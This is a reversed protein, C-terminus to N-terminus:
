PLTLGVKNGLWQRNKQRAAADGAPCLIVGAIDGNLQNSTYAGVAFAAWTSLNANRIELLNWGGPPLATNLHAGSSAAGGPVDIGNVAYTPTGSNYSNNPDAPNVVVLIRNGAPANYLLAVNAASNRRIAIFCDMDSGLTIAGTSMGDDLGDFTICQVVVQVEFTFNVGSGVSPTYALAGSFNFDTENSPPPTYSM